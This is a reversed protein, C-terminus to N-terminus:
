LIFLFPTNKQAAIAFLLFIHYRVSYGYLAFVTFLDGVAIKNAVMAKIFFASIGGGAKPKLFLGFRHETFFGAVSKEGGASIQGFNVAAAGAFAM